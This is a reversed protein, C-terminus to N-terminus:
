EGISNSLSGNNVRENSRKIRINNIILGFPIYLYNFFFLLWLKLICYISFFPLLLIGNLVKKYTETPENIEEWVSIANEIIHFTCWFGLRLLIKDYINFEIYERFPRNRVLNSCHPCIKYKKGMYFRDLGFFHSEQYLLKGCADCNHNITYGVTRYAM